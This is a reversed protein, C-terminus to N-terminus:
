MCPCVVRKGSRGLRSGGVGLLLNSDEYKLFVSKFDETKLM